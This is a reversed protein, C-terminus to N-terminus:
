GESKNKKGRRALKFYYSGGAPEPTVRNKLKPQKEREPNIPHENVILSLLCPGQPEYRQLTQNPYKTPTVTLPLPTISLCYDSGITVTTQIEFNLLLKLQQSNTFTPTQAFRHPTSPAPRLPPLLLSQSLSLNSTLNPRPTRHNITTTSLEGTYHLNHVSCTISTLLLTHTLSSPM